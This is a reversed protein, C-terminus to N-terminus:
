SQIYQKRTPLISSESQHVILGENSLELWDSENLEQIIIYLFQEFM